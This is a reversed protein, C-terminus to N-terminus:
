GWIGNRWKVRNQADEKHLGLDRMDKVICEKWMKRGRGRPKNGEVVVNRCASVWDGQEKKEIHGFWKLRAWRVLESISEIDLRWRLEDTPVRDRLSMSCMWRIMMRETRAVRNMDEVKMPCTESGYIM